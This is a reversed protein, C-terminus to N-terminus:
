ESKKTTDEYDNPVVVIPAYPNFEEYEAKPQARQSGDVGGFVEAIKNYLMTGFLAVLVVVVVSLWTRSKSKANNSARRTARAASQTKIYQGPRYEDGEAQTDLREGRMEARRQERAERQPDYYRPTYKFETAHRKFPTFAGM